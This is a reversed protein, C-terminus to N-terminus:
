TRDTTNNASDIAKKFITELNDITQWASESLWKMTRLEDATLDTEQLHLANMLRDLNKKSSIM